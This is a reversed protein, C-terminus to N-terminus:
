LSLVRGVYRQAVFGLIIEAVAKAVLHCVPAKLIKIIAECLSKVANRAAHASQKPQPQQRAAASQARTKAVKRKPETRPSTKRSPKAAREAPQTKQRWQVATGEMKKEAAQRKSRRAPSGQPFTWVVRNNNIAAVSTM